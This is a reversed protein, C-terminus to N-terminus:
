LLKHFYSEPDGPAEERIMDEFFSIGHSVYDLFYAIKSIFTDLEEGKRVSNTIKVEISKEIIPKIKGEIDSIEQKVCDVEDQLYNAEAELLHVSTSIMPLDKTAEKIALSM